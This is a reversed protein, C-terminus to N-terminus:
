SAFTSPTTRIAMAQSCSSIVATEIPLDKMGYTGICFGISPAAGRPPIAMAGVLAMPALLVSRRTMTHDTSHSSM